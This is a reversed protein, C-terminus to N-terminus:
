ECIVNVVIIDVLGFFVELCLFMDDVGGEFIVDVCVFLFEIGVM